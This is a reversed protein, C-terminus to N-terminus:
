ARGFSTNGRKGIEDEILAKSLTMAQIMNELRAHNATDAEAKMRAKECKSIISVIPRMAEGLEEVSYNEVSGDGSILAESIRLAKIRNKLLTHQSSGEVFKPQIRECNDIISEVLRLVNQLEDQGDGAKM